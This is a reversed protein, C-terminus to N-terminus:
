TILNFFQFISFYNFYVGYTAEKLQPLSPVSDHTAQHRLDVWWLPLNMKEALTSVATM